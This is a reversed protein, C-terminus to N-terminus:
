ALQLFVNICKQLLRIPRLRSYEPFDFNISEDIQILLFIFCYFVDQKLEVNLSCIQYVLKKDFFCVISTGPDHGWITM